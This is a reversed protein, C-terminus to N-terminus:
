GIPSRYPAPNRRALIDEFRRRIIDDHSQHTLVYFQEDRIAQLVIAAVQAPPMGQERAMRGIREGREVESQPVDPQDRLAQPRNRYSYMIQTDILGPCLVSVHVRAGADLLGFYLAESLAVVAHKTISYIRNAPQLGAMSATNVVHGEDGGALMPPVFTRIGHIVGWVNVNMLWQWDNLSSEWIPGFGGAVAANNCLVHVAGFTELTRDALQQVDAARSVDTPIGLVSFGRHRLADTAADLATREVDALVVRMGEEAFRTAMALGIGSAAGTVVAVRGALDKM